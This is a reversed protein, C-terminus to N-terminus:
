IPNGNRSADLSAKLHFFLAIIIGALLIPLISMPLIVPGLLFPFYSMASVFTITMPVFFYHPFYFGYIISLIDAAFFYREHMKPLCYPVILVSILAIQVIIAATVQFKIRNIILIFSTLILITLLIGLPALSNFYRNSVWLYPNPANLTLFPFTNAQQVYIFLLDQISRGAFWSPLIAILYTTPIWLFSRLSIYKKLGLIILVPLFFLAQQKFSLALGFAILALNEQKKCLYYLCAVLGTTYIIDCQGWFSGNLLLTPAFLLTLLALLPLSGQPYRLKILQYTFFGCIIEFPFNILKIAIVKSLDALFTVVLVLLYLYPPTYNSFNDKLAWFGGHSQIYDYWPELFYAYDSSEHSILSLRVVIAIVVAIATLIGKATLSL